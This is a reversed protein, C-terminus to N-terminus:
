GTSTTRSRGRGRIRKLAKGLRFAISQDPRDSASSDSQARPTVLWFIFAATIILLAIEDRNPWSPARSLAIIGATVWIGIKQETSVKFAM